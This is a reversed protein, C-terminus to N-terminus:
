VAIMATQEAGNAAARPAPDSSGGLYLSAAGAGLGGCLLTALALGALALKPANDVPRAEGPHHAKAAPLPAPEQEDDFVVYSPEDIPPPALTPAPKPAPADPLEELLEQPVVDDELPVVTVGASGTEAHGDDFRKLEPLSTPPVDEFSTACLVAVATANDDGERSIV